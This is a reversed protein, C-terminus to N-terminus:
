HSDGALFHFVCHGQHCYIKAIAQDTGAGREDGPLVSGPLVVGACLAFMSFDLSTAWAQCRRASFARVWIQSCNMIFACYAWARNAAMNGEDYTDTM